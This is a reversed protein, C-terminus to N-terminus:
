RKHRFAGIEKLNSDKKPRSINLIIKLQTKFTPNYLFLLMFNEFFSLTYLFKAIHFFMPCASHTPDQRLMCSPISTPDFSFLLMVLSAMMEPSRFLLSFLGNLIIMKSLRSEVQEKKNAGNRKRLMFLLRADFTLNVLVFAVNTMLMNFLYLLNLAISKNLKDLNNRTLYKFRDEFLIEVNYRQNVSLCVSSLALAVVLSALVVRRPRLSKFGPWRETNVAFRYVVFMTNTVNAMLRFTNGLFSEILLYFLHAFRTLAWPSCYVGNYEICSTLPGCAVILAELLVFVANIHVYHWMVRNKDVLRNKRYEASRKISIFVVITMLNCTIAILVVGPRIFINMFFDAYKLQLLWFYASPENIPEISEIDCRQKMSELDCQDQLEDYLRDCEGFAQNYSYAYSYEWNRSYVEVVWLLTCSCNQQARQEFIFGSLSVNLSRQEYRYFLCFNEDDLLGKDQKELQYLNSYQSTPRQYTPNYTGDENINGDAEALSVKLVSNTRRRNASDLWKYNNHLFKRMASVHLKIQRLKIRNLITGDWKVVSGVIKLERTNAFVTNPYLNRDITLGYGEIRFVYVTCNLKRTTSTQEIGFRNQKVLSDVVDLLTFRNFRANAFFQDCTDPHLRNGIDFKTDLFAGTTFMGQSDQESQKCRFAQTDIRKPYVLRFDTYRFIVFLTRVKLHSIAFSEELGKIGYIEVSLWSINSLCLAPELLAEIGTESRLTADMNAKIRINAKFQLEGCCDIPTAQALDTGNTAENRLPDCEINAYCDRSAKVQVSCVTQCGINRIIWLLCLVILSTRM